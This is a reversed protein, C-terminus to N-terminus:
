LGDPKRPLLSDFHRMLLGAEKFFNRLLGFAGPQRLRTGMDPRNDSNKVEPVSDAGTYGSPFSFEKGIM